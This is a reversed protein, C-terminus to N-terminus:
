NFLDSMRKRSAYEKETLTYGPLVTAQMIHHVGNLDIYNIYKESLYHVPAIGDDTMPSGMKLNNEEFNTQLRAAYDIFKRQTDDFYSRSRSDKEFRSVLINFKKLISQANDRRQSVAPDTKSYVASM